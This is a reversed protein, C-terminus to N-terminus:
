SDSFAAVTWLPQLAVSIRLYHLIQKPRTYSYHMHIDYDELAAIISNHQRILKYLKASNEKIEENCTRIDPV